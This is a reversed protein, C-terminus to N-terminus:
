EFKSGFAIVLGRLPLCGVFELKATFAEVTTTTATATTTAVLRTFKRILSEVLLSAKSVPVFRHIKVM